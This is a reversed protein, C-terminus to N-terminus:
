QYYAQVAPNAQDDFYGGGFAPTTVRTSSSPQHLYWGEQSNASWSSWQPSANGSTYYLINTDLYQMVQCYVVGGAHCDSLGKSDGGPGCNTEAFTLWQRVIAASAGVGGNGCDDYAWTET